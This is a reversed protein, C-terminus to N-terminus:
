KEISELKGKIFHYFYILIKDNDIEDILQKISNKYYNTALKTQNNNTKM